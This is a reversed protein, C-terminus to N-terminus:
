RQVEGSDGCMPKLVNIELPEDNVLEDVCAPCACGDSVRMLQRDLWDSISGVQAIVDKAAVLGPLAGLNRPAGKLRKEVEWISDIAARLDGCLREKYQTVDDADEHRSIGHM